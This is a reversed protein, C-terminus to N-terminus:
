AGLNRVREPSREAHRAAMQPAQPPPIAPQQLNQMQLRRQQEKRENQAQIRALLMQKQQQIARENATADALQRSVEEQERQLEAM